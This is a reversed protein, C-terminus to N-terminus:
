LCRELPFHEYHGRFCGRVIRKLLLCEIFLLGSVDHRVVGMPHLKHDFARIPIKYNEDNPSVKNLNVGTPITHEVVYTLNDSSQICDITWGHGQDHITRVHYKVPVFPRASTFCVKEGDCLRSAMCTFVSPTPMRPQTLIRKPQPRFRKPRSTCQLVIDDLDDDDDSHFMANNNAVFRDFSEYTTM